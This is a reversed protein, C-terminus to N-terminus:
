EIPITKKRSTNEEKPVRITLVGDELKAQIGDSKADELYIQRVMSAFRRERHIYNKKKEEAEETRSVSIRLRGDDCDLRIDEKKVGPLEAEVVYHDGQDEVDVKFTDGMLNRPFPWNDTFFDDLMNYLDNFGTGASIERDKRNFPILGAM